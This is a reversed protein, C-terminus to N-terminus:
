LGFLEVPWFGIDAGDDPHSGFITGDPASEQLLDFLVEYLDHVDDSDWVPSEDSALVLQRSVESANISVIKRQYIRRAGTHSRIKKFATPNLEELVQLFVPITDQLRLTGAVVTGIMEPNAGM